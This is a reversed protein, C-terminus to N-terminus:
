MSGFLQFSAWTKNLANLVKTARLLRSHRRISGSGKTLSVPVQGLGDGSLREM